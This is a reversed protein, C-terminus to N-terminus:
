SPIWRRTTSIRCSAGGVAATFITVQRPPGVTLLRPLLVTSRLQTPSPGRAPAPAPASPRPRVAGRRRLTASISAM